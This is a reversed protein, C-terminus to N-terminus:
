AKYSPPIACLMTKKEAQILYKLAQSRKTHNVVVAENLLKDLHQQRLKEADHKAQKLSKQARQLKTSLSTTPDM